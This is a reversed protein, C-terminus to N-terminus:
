DNSKPLMNCSDSGTWKFDVLIWKFKDPAIMGGTDRCVGCWRDIAVQFRDILDEGPTDIDIAGDVLDADAVFAFGFLSLITGLIATLTLLGHGARDMVQIMKTSILAWATPSIGNEQGSGQIPEEEDGCVPDSIGFGTNIRHRAKQLTEFLTRAIMAPVGFSMFVLIAVTHVIRDFCGRAGNLGFCGARRIL